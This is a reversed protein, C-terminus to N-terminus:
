RANRVWWADLAASLRAFAQRGDCKVAEGADFAARADPADPDAYVNGFSLWREANAYTLPWVSPGTPLEHPDDDLHRDLELRAATLALVLKPVGAEALDAILRVRYLDTESFREDASGDDHFWRHSPHIIGLMQWEHLTKAPVGTIEAAEDLDFGAPRERPSQKAQWARLAKDAALKEVSGSM